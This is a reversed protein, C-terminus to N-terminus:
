VGQMYSVTNTDGAVANEVAFHTALAPVGVEIISGAGVDAAAPLYIGTTAHNTSHTLNASANAASTGFAIYVAETTAGLNCFRIRTTSATIAVVNTTATDDMTLVSSYMTSPTFADSVKTAGNSEAVNLQTGSWVLLQNKDTDFFSNRVGVTTSYGAIIAAIEATTGNTVPSTVNLAKNTAILDLNRIDSM